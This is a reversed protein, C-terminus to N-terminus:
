MLPMLSKLIERDTMRTNPHQDKYMKVQTDLMAKYPTNEFTKSLRETLDRAKAVAKEHGVESIRRKAISSRVKSYAAVGYSVAASVAAVNAVVNSINNIKSLRGENESLKYHADATIGAVASQDKKLQELTREPAFLFKTGNAADKQFNTYWNRDKASTSTALQSDIALSNTKSLVEKAASVSQPTTGAFIGVAPLGIALSANGIKKATQTRKEYKSYDKIQQSLDANRYAKSLKKISKSYKKALEANGTGGNSVGYRKKGEETLTGDPNEFRRVGWKQGKIGHHELFNDQARTIIYDM